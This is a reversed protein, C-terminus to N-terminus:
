FGIRVGHEWRLGGRDRVPVSEFRIADGAYHRLRSTILADVTSAIHNALILGLYRTASRFAADSDSILGAFVQQELNSAGWAWAYAPPIAHATYYALAADYGPSGPTPARGGPVHLAVALLWVDGNFTGARTEPQVGEVLPEADFVGSSSYHVMSEYYEFVTDRREGASIRRAVQWALDRYRRELSRASRRQQVYSVWGWAELAMYPVWRADGSLYQAAGPVAASLLFKPDLPQVDQVPVPVIPQEQEPQARQASAADAGATLLVALLSAAPLLRRGGM